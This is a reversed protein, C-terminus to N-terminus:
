SRLDPNLTYTGTISDQDLIHGEIAKLVEPARFKGEVPCRDLDIACLTFVYHHIIEDNWPPCPGDYGFYEGELGQDGEFWETYSNLGHRTGDPGLPGPKGREIVGQSHAGEALGEMTPSLDVLVWHFFDTRPLDAPVTRGEQNVDDRRSPADLDVCVLILTRTAAPVGFWSLAPNRNPGFRIHTEVHPVGLAFDGPMAGNDEFSTSTLRM